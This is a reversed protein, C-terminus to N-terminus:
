EVIWPRADAVVVLAAGEESMRWKPNATEIEGPNELSTVM